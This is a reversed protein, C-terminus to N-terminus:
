LAEPSSCPSIHSTRSALCKILAEIPGQAFTIGLGLGLGLGFGLGLGLVLGYKVMM